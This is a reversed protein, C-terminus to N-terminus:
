TFVSAALLTLKVTVGDSRFCILSLEFPVEKRPIVDNHRTYRWFWDLSAVQSRSSFVFISLFGETAFQTNPWVVWTTPDFDFKACPTTKQSQSYNSTSHKLNSPFRNLPKRSRSSVKMLCCPLLSIRRFSRVFVVSPCVSFM